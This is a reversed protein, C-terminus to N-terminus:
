SSYSEKLNIMFLDTIFTVMNPQEMSYHEELTTRLRDKLSDPDPHSLFGVLMAMTTIQLFLFM